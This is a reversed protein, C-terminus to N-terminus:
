TCCPKLQLQGAVGASPLENQKTPVLYQDFAGQRPRVRAKSSASFPFSQPLKPKTEKKEQGECVANIGEMKKKEM